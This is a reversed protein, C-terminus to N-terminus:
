AEGGSPYEPVKVDTGDDPSGAFGAEVSVEIIEVEPSCYIGMEQKKEMNDEEDKGAGRFVKLLLVRLTASVIGHGRILTRLFGNCM